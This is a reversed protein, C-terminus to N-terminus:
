NGTEGHSRTDGAGYTRQQSDQNKLIELLEKYSRILDELPQVRYDAARRSAPTGERGGPRWLTERERDIDRLTEEAERLQWLVTDMEPNSRLVTGFFKNFIYDDVKWSYRSLMGRLGPKVQQMTEDFSKAVTGVAAGKVNGIQASEATAAERRGEAAIAQQVGANALALKDRYLQAYAAGGHPSVGLAEGFYEGLNVGQNEGLGLMSEIQPRDTSSPTMAEVVMRAERPSSTAKKYRETFTRMGTGKRARRMQGTIPDITGPIDHEPYIQALKVAFDKAERATLRGHIDAKGFSLASYLAVIEEPKLGAETLAVFVPPFYRGIKEPDVMHSRALVDWILGVSSEETFTKDAIQASRLVDLAGIGFARGQAPSHPFAKMTLLGVNMANQSTLQNKTVGATGRASLIWSMRELTEKPGIGASRGMAIAQAELADQEALSSAALNGRFDREVDAFEKTAGAAKKQLEIQDQLVRNVADVAAYLSVYQLVQREVVKLWNQHGSIGAHSTDKVKQGVKGSAEELKLMKAHLADLQRQIDSFDASGKAVVPM